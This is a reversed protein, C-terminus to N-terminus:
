GNRITNEIWDAFFSVRIHVGPKIRRPCGLGWSTVGQLIYRGESNPCVLPGGNDGLCGRYHGTCLNSNKVTGNLHEPHNCVENEIVPIVIQKLFEDDRTGQFEGWGTIYCGVGSPLIYGQVPLCILAVKDSLFAPRRLKLLAIDNENPELVIKDIDIIQRSPERASERHIGLFVKYVSPNRSRKLCHKATLVWKTDILTGGCFHAGFNTRLSIQWPWSYPKSICGHVLRGFCKKPKLTSRGCENSLQGCIPIDSCYDFRKQFDTTFCWPGDPDADPNRCFNEELGADSHTEPTFDRHFHPTMASWNQCTRGSSTTSKTGRYTVGNGVQCDPQGDSTQSIEDGEGHVPVITPSQPQLANCKSIRCYEWRVSPDTTYCWPASDQDPNRCYNDVLGANPFNHSTKQHRHPTMSNWEQCRKGSQTVSATGRYNYGNGNFCDTPGDENTPVRPVLGCKPVQCYEWRTNPDTTYCWPEKENDPNRCYNGELGKCPYNDPTRSHLHPNQADWRQCTRGSITTSVAGRFSHGKGTYCETEGEIAPPEETCRPINCFAWRNKSDTTFCWPRPEGDPNRCYNEELHKDPFTNSSYGHLHPTQSDWRQCIVGDETQSIRGRYNEGSCFMCEEECNQIRCYEWRTNVDLTYCWPGTTDNDPNRCYNAELDSHPNNEPTYNPKHPTDSAWKQCTRGSATKTATGRYSAGNGSKCELIFAQKEYLVVNPRRVVLKTHSNDATTICEQNKQTFLFARCLFQTEVTCKTACEEVDFASYRSERASYIWAGETKVYDALINSRVLCPLILFLLGTYALMKIRIQIM